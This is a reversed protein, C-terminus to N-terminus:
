QRAAGDLAGQRPRRLFPQPRRRAPDTSMWAVIALAVAAVLVYQAVADPATPHAPLPWWRDPVVSSLASATLACLAGAMGADAGPALRIAVASGALALGLLAGVEATLSGFMPLSSVSARAALALGLWGLGVAAGGAVVLFLRRRSLSLPASAVTPAAPDHFVDATTAAVVLGVLRLRWVVAGAEPREVATVALIALGVGVAGAVPLWRASRVVAWWRGDRVSRLRAPRLSGTGSSPTLPM